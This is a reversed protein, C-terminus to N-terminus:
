LVCVTIVSSMGKSNPLHGVIKSFDTNLNNFQKWLGRFMGELLKNWRLVKSRKILMGDERVPTGTM